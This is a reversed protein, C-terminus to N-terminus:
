KKMAGYGIFAVAGAVAITAITKNDITAQRTEVSERYAQATLEQSRELATAGGDLVDGALDILRGFSDSALSVVKGFGEGAVADAKQVTQLAAKVVDASEKIAGGDLTNITTNTSTSLAVDYSLANGDGSLGVGFGDAVVRRDNNQYTTSSSSNSKKSM